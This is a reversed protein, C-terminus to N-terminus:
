LENIDYVTISEIGDVYGDDTEYEGNRVKRHCLRKLNPNFNYLMSIMHVFLTEDGTERYMGRILNKVPNAKSIFNYEECNDDTHFVVCKIFYRKNKEKLEYEKKMLECLKVYEGNSMGESCEDIINQIESM